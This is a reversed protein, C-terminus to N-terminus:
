FRTRHISYWGLDFDSTNLCIGYHPEKPRREKDMIEISYCKNYKYKLSLVDFRSDFYTQISGKATSFDNNQRSRTLWSEVTSIQCMKGSINRYIELLEEKYEKMEEKSLYRPVNRDAEAREIQRLFFIYLARAVNGRDFFTKEKSKDPFVLWIENDWVKLKCPTKLKDINERRKKELGLLEAALKPDGNTHQDLWNALEALRNKKDEEDQIMQQLEGRTTSPSVELTQNMDEIYLVGDFAKQDNLDIQSLGEMSKELSQLIANNNSSKM